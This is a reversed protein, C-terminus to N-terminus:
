LSFLIGHYTSVANQKNDASPRKCQKWRNARTCITATFLPTCIGRQSRAKLEEPYTNLLLIAPDFMTIRLKTPGGYQKWLPQVMKCEQWCPVFIGTERGGQWCKNIEWREEREGKITAIRITHPIIENYNQYANRDM